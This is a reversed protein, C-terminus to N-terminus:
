LTFVLVAEGQIPDGAPGTAPRFRFRRMVDLFKKRYTADGIQPEVDVGIVRGNVGVTFHVTFTRGQV